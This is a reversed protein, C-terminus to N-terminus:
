KVLPLSFWFTSGKGEISSFGIKGGSLDIIKKALYLGIGLGETKYRATGEGRFFRSFIHSFEKESIGAGEDEVSCRVWGEMEELVITIKGGNLSYLIANDLFHNMIDFIKMEDAFVKIDKEPPFFVLNLNEADAWAGHKEVAKRVLDVISFFGPNLSLNGDELRNIELLKNVLRIMREDQTGIAKLGAQLEEIVSGTEPVSGSNKVISSLLLDVQWKISSLPNRLQHSVISIFESKTKSALAIREFSNLVIYSLIFMLITAGLIIAVVVLPEMFKLGVIYTVVITCAIIAGMILFIFHPCQWLEVKYERCQKKVNISELIKKCFM